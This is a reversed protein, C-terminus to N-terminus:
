TGSGVVVMGEIRRRLMERGHAAAWEVDNRLVGDRTVHLRMREELMSGLTTRVACTVFLTDQSQERGGGVLVLTTLPWSPVPDDMMRLTDTVGLIRMLETGAHRRVRGDRNDLDRTLSAIIADDLPTM